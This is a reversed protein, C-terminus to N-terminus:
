DNVEKKNQRQKKKTKKEPHERGVEASFGLREWIEDEPLNGSSQYTGLEVNKKKQKKDRDKLRSKAEQGKKQGLPSKKSHQFEM